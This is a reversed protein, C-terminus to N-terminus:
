IRELARAMWRTDADIAVTTFGLHEYFGIARANQEAVGLHVGPIGRETLAGLLTEILRRGLGLGAAAPLLNVHLHAPHREVVADPSRPPAHLLEVLRRDAPTGSGPPHRRRLGPWWEAECWAEWGRTDACGLVYGLLGPADPDGEGARRGGDVVWALDSAAALYPGAWLHGVLDPDSGALESPATMRCVRYVDAADSRRARRIVPTM